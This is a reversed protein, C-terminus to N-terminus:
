KGSENYIRFIHTKLFSDHIEYKTVVKRRKSHNCFTSHNIDITRCIDMTQYKGKLTDAIELKQTLTLNLSDLASQLIEKTKELRKVKKQLDIVESYKFEQSSGNDNRVKYWKIWNYLCTRSIGFTECIEKATKGNKYTSIAKDRIELTYM